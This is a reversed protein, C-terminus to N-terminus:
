RQTAQATRPALKKKLARAEALHPLDADARQWLKLLEDVRERAKARDGLRDYASALLLLAKPDLWPRSDVAGSWRMSRAKELWAAGEADKGRSIQLEGLISQGLYRFNVSPSEAFARLAKEAEVHRGGALAAMAEYMQRQAPEVEPWDASARAREALSAAESADGAIALSTAAAMLPRASKM